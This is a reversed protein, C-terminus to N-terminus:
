SFFVEEDWVLFPERFPVDGSEFFDIVDEAFAAMGLLNERLM